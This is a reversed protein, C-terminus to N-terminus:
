WFGWMDFYLSMKLPGIALYQFVAFHATCIQEIILKLDVLFIRSFKNKLYLSKFNNRLRLLRSFYDRVIVNIFIKFIANLPYTEPRWMVVNLSELVLRMCFNVWGEKEKWRLYCPFPLVELATVLDAPNSWVAVLVCIEGEIKWLKFCFM